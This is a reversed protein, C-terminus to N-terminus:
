KALNQKLWDRQAELLMVDPGVTPDEGLPDANSLHPPATVAPLGADEVIQVPPIATVPQQLVVKRRASSAAAIM